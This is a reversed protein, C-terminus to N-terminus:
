GGGALQGLLNFLDQSIDANDAAQQQQQQESQAQPPPQQQQQQPAGAALEMGANRLIAQVCVLSLVPSSDAPQPQSPTDKSSRPDINDCTSGM